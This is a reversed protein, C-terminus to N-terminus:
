EGSLIGNELGQNNDVVDLSNDEVGLSNDVVDLSSNEMGLSNDEEELSNQELEFWFEVGNERNAVGYSRNMSDQIAKVISLGIGSGGYARTRAKDVKYFKEFLHGISEDPIPEGTNFVTVRVNQGDSSITIEIRKENECHNVANSFLNTFVEEVRFEDGWVYIPMKESFLVEIGAQKTLLETSQIINDILTVIDFREMTLNTKGFELENLTLLQKVMKNMKNAEDCIVSCYYDRSEQDESIGEALGEAYGQIVAIPTKLEHSVNSIFESRMEEMENKRDIDKQLEINARKLESITKELAASMKNYNEGLLGIENKDKGEYRAEFDLESMKDSLSALDLLPKTMKRTAIVITLVSLAIIIIGWFAVFRNTIVAADKISAFATRMLFIYDGSLFGWMELYKSKSISDQTILMAYNDNQELVTSKDKNRLFVKDWLAMRMSDPDACNYMVTKSNVDVIILDINYRECIREIETGFEETNWKSNAAADEVKVFANNLAEEKNRLYFSELFTSNILILLGIAGVMLLTIILAFQFTISHKTKKEKNGFM